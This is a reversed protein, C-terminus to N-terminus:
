ENWHSLDRGLIKELAENYPRYFEVLRQRIEPKIPPPVFTERNMAILTKRIRDRWRDPIAARAAKRLYPLRSPQFLIRALLPFRSKSAPNHRLNVNPTFFPLGLHKFIENCMQVPREKLDEFLFIMVNEQPFLEYIEELHKVYIGRELYSCSVRAVPDSHRNPDALIAQEFSPLDEWGMSRAYWYASYARDVPNRLVLIIKVDPNHQFLRKRAKLSDLVDVNKALLMTSSDCHSFYRRYARAYGMEYIHDAWFYMFETQWHTCIQPHQSLYSKLSTTGAKQAGAIFIDINRM